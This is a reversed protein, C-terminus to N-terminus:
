KCVFRVAEFLPKSQHFYKLFYVLDFISVKFFGKCGECTRVGYHQCAANDGCVLCFQQIDINTPQTTFTGLEQNHMPAFHKSYDTLDDAEKCQSSFLSFYNPLPSFESGGRQPQSQQPSITRPMTYSNRRARPCAYRQLDEHTKNMQHHTYDAMHDMQFPLLLEPATETSHTQAEYVMGSEVQKSWDELETKINETKVGDGDCAKTESTRFPSLNYNSPPFPIRQYAQPSINASASDVADTNLNFRHAQSYLPPRQLDPYQSYLADSFDGEQNHIETKVAAFPAPHELAKPQQSDILHSAMDNRFAYLAEESINSQFAGSNIGLSRFVETPPYHFSSSSPMSKFQEQADTYTSNSHWQHCSPHDLPAVDGDERRGGTKSRDGWIADSRSHQSWFGNLQHQQGPLYCDSVRECAPESVREGKGSPSLPHSTKHTAPLVPLRPKDNLSEQHARCYFDLFILYDLLKIVTLKM